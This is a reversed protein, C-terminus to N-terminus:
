ASAAPDVGPLPTLLPQLNATECAGSLCEGREAHARYEEPFRELTSLIPGPALSELKCLATDSVKRALERLLIFDNPRPTAALIRDLAEVLRRTGIRCPVAKGCAENASFDAFFRATSVM